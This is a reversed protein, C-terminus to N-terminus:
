SPGETVYAVGDVVRIVAPVARIGLRRAGATGTIGIRCATCAQRLAELGTGGESPLVFVPTGAPLARVMALSAADHGVFAVLPPAGAPWRGLLVYARRAPAIPMPPEVPGPIRALGPEVRVRMGSLSPPADPVPCTPGYRGLDRVEARAAPAILLATVCPLWRGVVPRV